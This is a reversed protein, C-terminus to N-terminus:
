PVNMDPLVFVARYHNWSLQQHEPPKRWPSHQNDFVVVVFGTGHLTGHVLKLREVTLTIELICLVAGVGYLRTRTLVGAGTDGGVAGGVEFCCSTPAALCHGHKINM